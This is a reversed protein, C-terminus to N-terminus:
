KLVYGKSKDFLVGRANQGNSVSFIADPYEAHVYDEIMNRAMENNALVSGTLAIRMPKPDAYRSFCILIDNALLEAQERIVEVAEDIGKDALKAVPVAMAAVETRSMKYFPANCDEMRKVNFYSTFMDILPNEERKDYSLLAKKMASLAIQYASGEDGLIQGYGGVSILKGNQLGNVISGTGAIVLAGDEGELGNYLALVADTIARTPVHGIRASIEGSVEPEHGYISIGAIGVLVKQPNEGVQNEINLVANAINNIGGEYDIIINGQGAEATAIKKGQEDYAIATTHTGGADVGITYNM